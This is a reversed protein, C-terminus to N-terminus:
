CHGARMAKESSCQRRKAAKEKSDATRVKFMIFNCTTFLAIEDSLSGLKHHGYGAMGVVICTAHKIDALHLLCQVVSASLENPSDICEGSIQLLAHLPSPPCCSPPQRYTHCCAQRHKWTPGPTRARISPLHQWTLPGVFAGRCDRAVLM